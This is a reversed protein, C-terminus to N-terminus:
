KAPTAGTGSQVGAIIKKNEPGSVTLIGLTGKNFARFIAHDVLVFDGPV